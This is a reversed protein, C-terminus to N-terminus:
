GFYGPPGPPPFDDRDPEGGGFPNIPDYRAGRGRGRGGRIPGVGGGRAPVGGGFMPHNPGMLGGGGGFMPHDPGM